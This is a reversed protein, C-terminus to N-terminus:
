SKDLMNSAMQAMMIRSVDELTIAIHRDVSGYLPSSVSVIFGGHAQEVRFEGLMGTNKVPAERGLGGNSAMSQLNQAAKAKMMSAQQAAMISQEEAIAEELFSKSM